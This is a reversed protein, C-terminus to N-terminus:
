QWSKINDRNTPERGNNTGDGQEAKGDPGKSWVIAAHPIGRYPYVSFTPDVGNGIDVKNDYDLDFAIIYPNGWPDRFNYDPTSVGSAATNPSVRANLFSHKQPNRAHDQNARADVDMLIVTVDGNDTSFSYDKSRDANNPLPNPTPALTYQAQYSSIAAVINNMDVKASKIKANLRAKSLVPMLLGALIAIISIVVLLEILTFGRRGRATVGCPRSKGPVLSVGRPRCCEWEDRVVLPKSWDEETWAIPLNVGSPAKKSFMKM